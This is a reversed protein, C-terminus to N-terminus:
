LFVEVLLMRKVADAAGVSNAMKKDKACVNDGTTIAKVLIPIKGIKKPTIKFKFTNSKGGCVCLKTSSTDATFDKSAELTM